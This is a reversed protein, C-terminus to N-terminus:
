KRNLRPPQPFVGLPPDPPQNYCTLDPAGEVPPLQVVEPPSTSGSMYRELVNKIHEM